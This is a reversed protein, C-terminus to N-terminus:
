WLIRRSGQPYQRPQVCAHLRDNRYCSYWCFIAEVRNKRESRCPKTITEIRFVIAVALTSTVAAHQLMFQQADVEGPFALFGGRSAASRGRPANTEGLVTPAGDKRGENAKDRKAHEAAEKEREAQREVIREKAPVSLDEM